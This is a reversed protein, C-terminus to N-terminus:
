SQNVSILWGYDQRCDVVYEIYVKNDVIQFLALYRDMITLKRYKHKPLLDDWLWPCREPFVSLSDAREHFEQILRFAAKESVEALFVAHEVLMESAKPSIEVKYQKDM